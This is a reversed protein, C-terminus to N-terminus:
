NSLRFIDHPLLVRYSISSTTYRPLNDPSVFSSSSLISSIGTSPCPSPTNNVNSRHTSQRSNSVAGNRLPTITSIKCESTRRSKRSPSLDDNFLQTVLKRKRHGGLRSAFNCNIYKLANTVENSIITDAEENNCPFEDFVQFKKLALLIDPTLTSPNNGM